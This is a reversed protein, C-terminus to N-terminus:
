DLIWKDGVEYKAPNTDEGKLLAIKANHRRKKNLLQKAWSTYGNEGYLRVARGKKTDYYYGGRTTVLKRGKEEKAKRTLRRKEEKKNMHRM